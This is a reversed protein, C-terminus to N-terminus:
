WDLEGSRISTIGHMASVIIDLLEAELKTAPANAKVEDFFEEVEEKLVGYIEHTSVFLGRGKGDPPEKLANKYATVAAAITFTIQTSTAKPREM